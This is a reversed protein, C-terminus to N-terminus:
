SCAFSGWEREGLFCIPCQTQDSAMRYVVKPLVFFYGDFGSFLINVKFTIHGAYAQSSKDGQLSINWAQPM